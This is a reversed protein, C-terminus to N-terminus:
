WDRRRPRRHEDNRRGPYRDEEYRDDGGRNRYSLDDCDRASARLSLVAGTVVGSGTANVDINRPRVPGYESIVMNRWHADDVRYRGQGQRVPIAAGSNSNSIDKWAIILQHDARISLSLGTVEVADTRVGAERGIRNLLQGVNAVRYGMGAPNNFRQHLDVSVDCRDALAPAASLTLALASFVYSKFRNM